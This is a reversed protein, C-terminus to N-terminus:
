FVTQSAAVLLILTYLNTSKIHLESNCLYYYKYHKRVMNIFVGMSVSLTLLTHNQEQSHKVVTVKYLLLM